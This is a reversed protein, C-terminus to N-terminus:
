LSKCSSHHLWCELNDDANNTAFCRDFKATIHNITCGTFNRSGNSGVECGSYVTTKIGARKSEVRSGPFGSASMAPLGM